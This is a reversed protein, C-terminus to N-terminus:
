GLILRSQIRQKARRVDEMWGAQRHKAKSDTGVDLSDQSQSGAATGAGAGTESYTQTDRHTQGYCLAKDRDLLRSCM